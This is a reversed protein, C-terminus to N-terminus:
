MLITKGSGSGGNLWFLNGHSLWDLVSKEKLFWEHTGPQKLLTAAAHKVRPDLSSLWDLMKQEQIEDANRVLEGIVENGWRQGQELTRLTSTNEISIATRLIACLRGLRERNKIIEQQKLPWLLANVANKRRNGGVLEFDHILSRIDHLTEECAHLVDQQVLAHSDAQQATQESLSHSVFQSLVASLVSTEHVLSKIDDPASAVSKVYKYGAILVENVLTVLGAVGSAISLPEAM